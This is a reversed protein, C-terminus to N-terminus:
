ASFTCFIIYMGETKLKAWDVDPKKEKAGDSLTLPM